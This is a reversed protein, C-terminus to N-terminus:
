SNRIVGTSLSQEESQWQAERTGGGGEERRADVDSAFGVTDRGGVIAAQFGDAVPLRPAFSSEVTVM